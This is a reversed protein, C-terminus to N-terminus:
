HQAPAAHPEVPALVPGILEDLLGHLAALDADCGSRVCEAAWAGAAGLRNVRTLALRWRPARSGAREAAWAVCRRARALEVEREARTGVVLAAYRILAQRREDDIADNYARLLGGLVPSVSRPHDSFREGALTSALEMVCMGHSPSAHRGRSLRVTQHSLEPMGPLQEARAAKM